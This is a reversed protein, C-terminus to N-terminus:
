WAILSSARAESRPARPPSTRGVVWGSGLRAKTVFM